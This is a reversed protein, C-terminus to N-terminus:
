NEGAPVTTEEVPPLTEETVPPLTEEATQAVTEEAPPLTEAETSAATEESAPVTTEEPLTQETPATTQEPLLAEMVGEILLAVTEGSCIYLENDEQSYGYYSSTGWHSLFTVTTDLSPTIQFSLTHTSGNGDKGLQQTHYRGTCNEATLIVFGTKATSKETHELTVAYTKGGQLRATHKGGATSVPLVEGNANSIQVQVKAEFKASRITGAVSAINYSFCAYASISMAGLCLLIVAVTLTARALIVKERIKGHKPIYFFEQYLKKM